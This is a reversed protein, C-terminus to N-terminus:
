RITWSVAPRAGVKAPQSNEAAPTEKRVLTLRIPKEPAATASESLESTPLKKGTGTSLQEACSFAHRERLALADRTVRQYDGAPCVPQQASATRAPGGSARPAVTRAAAKPLLNKPPDAPVAKPPDPLLDESAPGPVPPVPTQPAIKPIANKPPLPMLPPTLPPLAANSAAAPKGEASQGSAQRGTGQRNHVSGEGPSACVTANRGPEAVTRCCPAWLEHWRAAICPWWGFLGEWGHNKEDCYGEWATGAWPDAVPSAITTATPVPELPGGPNSQSVAQCALGTGFFIPRLTKLPSAMAM